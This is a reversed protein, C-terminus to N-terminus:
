GIDLATELWQPLADAHLTVERGSTIEVLLQPRTGSNDFVFARDTFSLAERLLALSRHYRAEIKDPAVPHGGLAVRALVREQNIRFDATAVFYLYTRYGQARADALFRLKSPHSMVTEFLISQRTRLLHYRLFEAIWAALYSNIAARGWFLSNDSIHLQALVDAPLRQAVAMGLFAALDAEVLNLNWTEFLLRGQERMSTEIEDANISIGLVITESLLPVLSSKGSGNPGALM